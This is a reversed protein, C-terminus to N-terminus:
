RGTLWRTRLVPFRGVIDAVDEAKRAEADSMGFGRALMARTDRGTETKLVRVLVADLAAMEGRLRRLERLGLKAGTPDWDTSSIRPVSFRNLVGIQASATENM